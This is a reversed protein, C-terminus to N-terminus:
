MVIIDGDTFGAPVHITGLITGGDVTVNSNQQSMRVVWLNTHRTNAMFGYFIGGTRGGISTVYLSRIAMWAMSVNSFTGLLGIGTLGATAGTTLTTLGLMAKGGNGGFANTAIVLDGPAGRNFVGTGDFVLKDQGSVFNNVYDAVAVGNLALRASVHNNLGVGTDWVFYDADDDASGDLTDAGSYWGAVITDSGTGGVLQNRGYAGVLSDDGAGGFVTQQSTLSDWGYNGGLYVVDNGDGGHIFEGTEGLTTDIQLYAGGYITDDGADGKITDGEMGGYIVDNGGGGQLESAVGGEGNLGFDATIVRLGYGGGYLVDDGSGGLVLDRAYQGAHITDAGGNGELTDSGYGYTDNILDNDKNGRVLQGFGIASNLLIVDDGQGGYVTDDYGTVISDADLNGYIVNQGEARSTAYITDDGQGGYLIDNGSGDGDLIDVGIRYGIFDDGKNGYIIDDGGRAAITDDGQGGFLLDDGSGSMLIDSGLNGYVLQSDMTLPQEIVTLPVRLGWGADIMDEGQGGYLSDPGGGGLIVDNDRNGYVLDGGSGGIFTDAGSLGHYQSGVATDGTIANGLPDADTLITNDGFTLLGGSTVIVTDDLMDATVNIRITVAEGDVIKQFETYTSRTFVTVGTATTDLFLTDTVPNFVDGIAPNDVLNQFVYTTM